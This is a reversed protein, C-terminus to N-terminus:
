VTGLLGQPTRVAVTLMYIGQSGQSLFFFLHACFKFGSHCIKAWTVKQPVSDNQPGEEKLVLGQSSLMLVAM